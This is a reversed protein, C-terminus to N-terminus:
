LLRVKQSMPDMYYSNWLKRDYSYLMIYQHLHNWFFASFSGLRVCSAMLVLHKTRWGALTRKEKNQSSGNREHEEVRKGGKGGLEQPHEEPLLILQPPQLLFQGGLVDSYALQFELEVVQLVNAGVVGSRKSEQVPLAESGKGGGGESRWCGESGKARSKQYIENYWLKMRGATGHLACLLM